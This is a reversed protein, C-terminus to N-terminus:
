HAGRMGQLWAGASFFVYFMTVLALVVLAVSFANRKWGTTRYRGFAAIGLLAALAILRILPSTPMSSAETTLKPSYEVDALTAPAHTLREAPDAHWTSETLHLTYLEVSHLLGGREAVVVVCDAGVGALVLRRSPLQADASDSPNYRAGADAIGGIGKEGRGIWTGVGEPLQALTRVETLPKGDCLQPADIAFAPMCGVACVACAICARM